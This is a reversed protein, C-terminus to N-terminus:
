IDVTKTVPPFGIIYVRYELERSFDGSFQDMGCTWSRQFPNPHLLEDLQESNGMLGNTDHIIILLWCLIGIVKLGQSFFALNKKKKKMGKLNLHTLTHTHTHTEYCTPPHTWKDGALLRCRGYSLADLLLLKQEVDDTKDKEFSFFGFFILLNKQTKTLCFRNKKRLPPFFQSNIYIFLYINILSATRHTTKM